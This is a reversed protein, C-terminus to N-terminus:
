SRTSTRRSITPVTARRPRDADGHGRQSLAFAHVSRPLHPLVREFSRWSDTGGHLLLMPIGSPEGQDTYPLKVGNPLEVSKSVPAM